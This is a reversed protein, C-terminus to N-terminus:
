HVQDQWVHAVRLLSSLVIRTCRTKNWVLMEGDLILDESELQAKVVNDFM